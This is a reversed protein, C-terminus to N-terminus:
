LGNIWREVREASEENCFVVIVDREKAVIPESFPILRNESIHFALIGEGRIPKLRKQSLHSEQFLKRLFIVGKGGCFSRETVIRNSHIKEIITHYSSMKAGRVVVLGLSHMLLYYEKENNIVISKRIGYEKAEISKIINFEDDDTASVVIDAYKLGEEEFLAKTGYKSNLVMVKGELLEDARKCLEIDKEVIKVEKKAELFRKAIALALENAGFILCKKIEEPSNTELIKCVEKIKEEDGFIYVLDGSKLSDRDKSFIFFERDREVGVIEFNEFLIGFEGFDRSIKVSILKFDTYVFSKVNNALPYNLLAGVSNATLEIPFITEDIGFKKLTPSDRFFRKKLRVFKRKVVISEDIVVSSILNAEDVDTVAIFLEFERNILKTYTKPNEIDGHIILIDLNEQLRNLAEINRDVVTVSHALSLTNALNFGVKGAGAIIINM